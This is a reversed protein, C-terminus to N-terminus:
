PPRGTVCRLTRQEEFPSDCRPWRNCPACRLVRASSSNDEKPESALMIINLTRRSIIFNCFVSFLNDVSLKRSYNRSCVISYSVIGTFSYYYKTSKLQSLLRLASGDAFFRLLVKRMKPNFTNYYQSFFLITVSLSFCDM